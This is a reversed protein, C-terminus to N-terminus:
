GMQIMKASKQYAHDGIIVVSAKGEQATELMGSGFPRRLEGMSRRLLGEDSKVANAMFPLMRSTLYHEEAAM